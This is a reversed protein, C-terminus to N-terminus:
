EVVPKFWNNSPYWAEHKGPALWHDFLPYSTALM